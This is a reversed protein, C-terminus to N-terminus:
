VEGEAGGNIIEAVQQIINDLNPMQYKKKLIANNLARAELARKVTKDKKVTVVVPQIFVEDSIKDVKRIHGEKLLKAIEAEVADQLQLPM